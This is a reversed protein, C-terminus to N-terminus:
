LILQFWFNVAVCVIYVQSSNPENGTLCDSSKVQGVTCMIIGINYTFAVCVIDFFTCLNVDSAM